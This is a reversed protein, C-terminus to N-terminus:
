KGSEAKGLSKEQEGEMTKRPESHMFEGKTDFFLDVEGVEAKYMMKGDAKTITAAKSLKIGPYFRIVYMAINNPLVSLPTEVETEVLKGESDMRVILSNAGADFAAEYNGNRMNWKVNEMDPYLSDFSKKVSEPATVDQAM